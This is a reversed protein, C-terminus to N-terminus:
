SFASIDIEQFKPKHVRAEKAKTLTRFRGRLMLKAKTFGGRRRIEKYTIGALKSQM